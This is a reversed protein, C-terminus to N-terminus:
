SHREERLPHAPGAVPYRAGFTTGQELSSSFAAAGRPDLIKVALPIEGAGTPPSSPLAAIPTLMGHTVAFPM